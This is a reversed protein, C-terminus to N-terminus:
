CRAAPSNRSSGCTRGRTTWGCPPRRKLSRPPSFKKPRTLREKWPARLPRATRQFRRMRDPRGDAPRQGIHVLGTENRLCTHGPFAFKCSQFGDRKERQGRGGKETITATAHVADRWQFKCPNGVPRSQGNKQRRSNADHFQPLGVLFGDPVAGREPQSDGAQEAQNRVQGGHQRIFRFLAPRTHKGQM